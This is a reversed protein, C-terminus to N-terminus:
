LGHYLDGVFVRLGKPGEPRQRHLKGTILDHKNPPVCIGNKFTIDM